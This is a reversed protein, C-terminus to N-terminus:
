PDKRDMGYVERSRAQVDGTERCSSLRCRKSTCYPKKSTRQALPKGRFLRKWHIPDTQQLHRCTTLVSPHVRSRSEIMREKWTWAQKQGKLYTKDCWRHFEQVRDRWEDTDITCCSFTLRAKSSTMTISLIRAIRSRAISM